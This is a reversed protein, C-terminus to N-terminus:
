FRYYFNGGIQFPNDLKDQSKESDDRDGSKNRGDADPNKEDNKEDNRQDSGFLANEDPRSTNQASLGSVGAWLFFCSLFIKSAM